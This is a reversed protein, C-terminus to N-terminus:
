GNLIGALKKKAGDNLWDAWVDKYKNLFYAAAEDGSAKNEEQWALVDGMQANTFSVKSMLKAVDPNAKKFAATSITIVKGAPYASKGPTACTDETNCKHKEADFEGIDISKMPYKGLIATPAWYYGFWPKKDAYAAAISTALTEGSGHDFIELGKVDRLGHAKILNDNIKRCAWGVPCNHFKGGVLAPNAKVDEITKLNPNAKALYEPILWEEVGGDSLVDTLTVIKGEDTLKKYPVAVSNVM